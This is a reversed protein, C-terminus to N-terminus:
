EAEKIRAKNPHAYRVNRMQIKKYEFIGIRGISCTMTATILPM